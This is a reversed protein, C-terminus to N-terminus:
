ANRDPGPAEMFLGVFALVCLFFSLVVCARASPPLFGAPPAERLAPTEGRFASESRSRSRAQLAPTRARPTPELPRAAPPIEVHLTGEHRDVRVAHFTGCAAALRAEVARRVRTAATRSVAGEVTHRNGASRSLRMAADQGCAVAAVAVRVDRSFDSAVPCWMSESSSSTPECVHAAM